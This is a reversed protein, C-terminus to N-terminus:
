PSLDCLETRYKVYLPHRPYGRATWGLCCVRAANLKLLRVVEAPQCRVYEWSTRPVSAGWGCVVTRDRVAAIISKDNEPGIPDKYTTLLTPDTARFAFLNVVVIGGNGWQKAFGVCKRITPDDREGDATSPNLMCFVVPPMGDNWVRTLEYRYLGCASITATAQTYRMRRNNM